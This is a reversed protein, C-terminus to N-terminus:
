IAFQTALRYTLILPVIELSCLYCLFLMWSSIQSFFIRYGKCIFVLRVAIFIIISIIAVSKEAGPCSIAILCTIFFLPAMLAQSAGFGKIWIRAHLNDTFVWGVGWYSLCMFLSYAVAVGIGIMMGVSPPFGPHSSTHYYGLCCYVIIGVCVCWMVNLLIILSTERVTDDFVNQRTRTDILNRFLAGVYKINNHFRLAIILFLIFLGGLIFSVGDKPSQRVPATEQSEPLSFVLGYRADTFVQASDSGATVTDNQLTDLALEGEQVM